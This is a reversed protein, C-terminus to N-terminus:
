FEFLDQVLNIKIHFSYCARYLQTRVLVSSTAIRRKSLSPVTSILVIHKTHFEVQRKIEIIMKKGLANGNVAPIPKPM